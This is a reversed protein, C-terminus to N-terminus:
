VKGELGLAFAHVADKEVTQVVVL